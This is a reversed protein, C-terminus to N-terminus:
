KLTRYSLIHVTVCCALLIFFLRFAWHEAVCITCFLLTIWLMTIAVAKVRLPIAKHELFNSIYPGFKPHNMLWNYLKRNGRLFLAASLLLLPTTPLVPLFLGLVAAGFFILGLITFLIKM